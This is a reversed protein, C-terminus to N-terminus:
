LWFLIHKLILTRSFESELFGYLAWIITTVIWASRSRRCYGFWLNILLLIIGIGFLGMRFETFAEM